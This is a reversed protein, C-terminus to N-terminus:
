PRGLGFKTVDFQQGFQRGLPEPDVGDRFALRLPGVDLFELFGLGGDAPRMDPRVEFVAMAWAFFWDDFTAFRPKQDLRLRERLIEIQEDLEAEPALSLGRIREINRLHKRAFDQSEPTVSPVQMVVLMFTIAADYENGRLEKAKKCITDLTPAMYDAPVYGFEKSLLSRVKSKFLFGLM